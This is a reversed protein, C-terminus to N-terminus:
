GRKDHLAQVCAEVLGEVSAKGAVVIGSVGAESLSAATTAGIAVVASGELAGALDGEVAAGLGAVASPSAFLVAAVGEALDARVRRMDPATVETRYSEVRTVRAGRAELGEELTTRALSGAFFLIQAGELLDGAGLARVLGQAGDGDGVLHVPWDSEELVLATRPGVAAVRGYGPRWPTRGAVAMAARPSTFVLWAYSALRELARDLPAPDRPRRFSLTPWSRVVAGEELLAATLPDDPEGERTTAVVRGSLRGTVKGGIGQPATGGM